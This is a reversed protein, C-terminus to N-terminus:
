KGARVAKEDEDRYPRNGCSLTWTALSQDYATIDENLVRRHEIATAAAAQQAQVHENLATRAPEMSTTWKEAEAKIAADAQAVAEGEAQLQGRILEADKPPKGQFDKVRQNYEAVREGHLQVRENFARGEAAKANFADREAQVEAKQRNVAEVEAAIDVRRKELEAARAQQSQREKMCVRLEDRTMLRGQPAKGGLSKGASQAQSAAGVAALTIALLLRPISQQVM